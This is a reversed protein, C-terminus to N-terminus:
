KGQMTNLLHMNYNPLKTIIPLTVHKLLDRELGFRKNLAISQTVSKAIDKVLGINCVFHLLYAYGHLHTNSFTLDLSPPMEVPLLAQPFSVRDLLLKRDSDLLIWRRAVHLRGGRM